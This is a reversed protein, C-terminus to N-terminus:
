WMVINADKLFKLRCILFFCPSAGDTPSNLIFYNIENRKGISVKFFTLAQLQCNSSSAKTLTLSSPLSKIRLSKILVLSFRKFAWSHKCCWHSVPSWLWLVKSIARFLNKAIRSFILCFYALQFSNTSGRPLNLSNEDKLFNCVSFYRICSTKISRFHAAGRNTM